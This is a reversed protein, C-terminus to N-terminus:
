YHSEQKSKDKANGEHGEGDQSKEGVSIHRHGDGIRRDGVLALDDMHWKIRTNLFFHDAGAHNGILRVEGGAGVDVDLAAGNAVAEVILGGGDAVVHIGVGWGQELGVVVIGIDDTDAVVRDAFGVPLDLVADAEGSHGGELGLEGVVFHPLYADEQALALLGM